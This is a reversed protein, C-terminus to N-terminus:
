VMGESQSKGSWGVHRSIDDTIQIMTKAYEKIKDDTFRPSPGTLSMSAFVEGRENRIPTAVCRIGPEHEIDDIAYGRRRIEALHKKLREPETITNPTFAPLGKRKIIDNITEVSQFALIVKGVGTCHMHVRRGSVAAITLKNEPQASEIYVVDGNDFVTLHVTEGIKNVLEKMFPIAIERLKFGSRVVNGLEFLRLGLFYKDNVTNKEIWRNLVFTNLINYANSKSINFERSIETVGKEGEVALYDIIHMAKQLSKVVNNAM